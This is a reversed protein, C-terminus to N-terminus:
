IWSSPIGKLKDEKYSIGCTNNGAHSAIISSFSNTAGTIPGNRYTTSSDVTTSGHEGNTITTSYARFMKM